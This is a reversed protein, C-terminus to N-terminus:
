IIELEKKLALLQKTWKGSSPYELPKRKPYKEQYIKNIKQFERKGIKPTKPVENPHVYYKDEDNFAGKELYDALNRLFVPLSISHNIEDTGFYRKWSNIIKGELANARFEICNRITGKQESYDESKLKHIHDLVCKELPVEIGLLPCKKDNLLWLKEKLPKIDSFKMEIFKPM